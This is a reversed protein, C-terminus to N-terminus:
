HCLKALERGRLRELFWRFDALSLDPPVAHDLGPFYGGIKLLPVVKNQIEKEMNDRSQALLKKDLGGFLVMKPHKERVQRIDMGAQVEFPLQGKIGVEELLPLLQTMDGDSDVWGLTEFRWPRDTPQFNWIARFREKTRM